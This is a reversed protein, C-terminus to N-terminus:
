MYPVFLTSQDESSLSTELSMEDFIQIKRYLRSIITPDRLQKLSRRSAGIIVEETIIGGSTIIPADRLDRFCSLSRSSHLLKYVYNHEDNYFLVSSIM